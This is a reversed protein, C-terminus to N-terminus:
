GLYDTLDQINNINFLKETEELAQIKGQHVFATHRAGHRADGPQHTVMLVTMAKERHLDVVLDLMERRLAPGLAAFPEDLLLLPRDRVLVRALAVRQREGGSLQGPLRKAMEDLGVRRLAGAIKERFSLTLNLNPSIGLAVNTEVDLHAFLNGEQFIMTVPRDPPASTLDRGNFFIRGSTPPEFGAILNLLTTKGSGSPGIVALFDGPEVTLDFAMEMNGHTDEYTFRVDDLQLAPENMATKGLTRRHRAGAADLTRYSGMRQLILLPLTVLDQSGFLAIAGLDGLSLAMAFAFALVFGPRLVPWDALRWRNWGALGLSACLKDHAAAANAHAPGLIRLAYPLAMLGNVVVVIAPALGFGGDFRRLLMFWGAGLVIPPMVLILSGGMDCATSFGPWLRGGMRRARYAATLLPWALALCFIASAAGIALSTSVAQWVVAEGLLRGFPASLASLALALLPLAIYLAAAAIVVGDGIRGWFAARDPRLSAHSTTIQDGNQGAVMPLSLRLGVAILGGTLALQILALIVARGPDFDFRLAQYIAVEITTAAPGGGLTLVVTFSAISLMLVLGVIGPLCARLIPWEIVRFLTRSTLGLQSALRWTEGPIRELHFVMLRVALPLNFFVHALLIGTLGYINPPAAAIGLQELLFGLGNTIWGQRGWVDVIGLVVVLAPLALPLAFLRLLMARGPFRPRRAIARAVPLALGVSLVASLGAQWLTFRVVRWLYADTLWSRNGAGETPTSIATATLALLAAAMVVVVGALAIGGSILTASPRHAPRRAPRHAPRPAHHRSPKM